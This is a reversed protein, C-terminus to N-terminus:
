TYTANNKAKNEPGYDSIKGNAKIEIAIDGM